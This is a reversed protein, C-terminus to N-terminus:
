FKNTVTYTHTLPYLDSNVDGIERKRDAGDTEM